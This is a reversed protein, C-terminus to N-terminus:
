RKRYGDSRSRTRKLTQTTDSEPDYTRTATESQCAPLCTLWECYQSHWRGHRAVVCMWSSTNEHGSHWLTRWTSVHSSACVSMITDRYTFWTTSFVSLNQKVNRYASMLDSWENQIVCQRVTSITSLEVVKESAQEVENATLAPPVAGNSREFEETAIQYCIDERFWHSGAWQGRCKITLWNTQNLLWPATIETCIKASQCPTGM